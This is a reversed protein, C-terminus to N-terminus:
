KWIGKEIAASMAEDVCEDYKAADFDYRKAFRIASWVAWLDNNFLCDRSFRYRDADTFMPPQDLWAVFLRHMWGRERHVVQGFLFDGGIFHVGVGVDSQNAQWCGSSKCYIPAHTYAWAKGDKNVVAFKFESPLHKFHKQTLTQM